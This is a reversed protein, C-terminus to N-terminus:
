LAEYEAEALLLSNRADQLDGHTDECESALSELATNVEVM